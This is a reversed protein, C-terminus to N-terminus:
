RRGNRVHCVTLSPVFCPLCACLRARARECAEDVGIRCWSVRVRGRPLFSPKTSTPNLSPPHCRPPAGSICTRTPPQGPRPASCLADPNPLCSILPSLAPPHVNVRTPLRARQAYRTPRGLQRQAAHVAAVSRHVSRPSARSAIRHAPQLLGGGHSLLPLPRDPHALPCASSAAM